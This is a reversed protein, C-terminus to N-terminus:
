KACDRQPSQRGVKNGPVLGGWFAVDCYVGKNDGVFSEAPGLVDLLRDTSYSKRRNLRKVQEPDDGHSRAMAEDGEDPDYGKVELAEDVSVTGKPNEHSHMEQESVRGEGWGAGIGMGSKLDLNGGADGGLLKQAAELSQWNEWGYRAAKIKVELAGVSTTSPISNLPMDVM